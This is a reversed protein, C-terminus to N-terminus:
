GNSSNFLQQVTTRKDLKDTATRAFRKAFYIRKPTEYASVKTRIQELLNLLGFDEPQGEVILILKQGLKEDPESWSFFANNFHLADFVEAVAADVKDLVIKVGGSNIVNDARGIWTFANGSIEVLDNTQVMEGNTVLGSVFLCGREDTGYSIGPLFTFANSAFPGNLQRLAVHSVTETMGYSAYVPIDLSIIKRKLV